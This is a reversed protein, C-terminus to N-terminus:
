VSNGAIRIPHAETNFVFQNDRSASVQWPAEEAQIMYLYKFTEAFMFSEQSNLLQGGNAANVDSIASLGSGASCAAM